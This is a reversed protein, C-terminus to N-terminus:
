MKTAQLHKWIAQNSGQIHHQRLAHLRKLRSRIRAAVSSSYQFMHFLYISYIAPRKEWQSASVHTMMHRQVTGRTQVQDTHTGAESHPPESSQSGAYTSNMLCIAPLAGNTVLCPPAYGAFPGDFPQQLLARMFLVRCSGAVPSLDESWDLYIKADCFKSPVMRYGCTSGVKSPGKPGPVAECM